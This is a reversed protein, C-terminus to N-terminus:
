LSPGTHEIRGKEGGGVTLTPSNCRPGQLIMLVKVSCVLILFPIDRQNKTHSLSGGDEQEAPGIPSSRTHTRAWGQGVGVCELVTCSAM